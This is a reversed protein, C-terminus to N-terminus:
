LLGHAANTWAFPGWLKRVLADYAIAAQRPNTFTGLYHLKGRQRAWAQFKGNPCPHVGKLGTTNSSAPPRNMNNQANTCTRLNRRRNDLGNRNIHDVHPRPQTFGLLARHFWILRKKGTTRDCRVAYYTHSTAGAIAYWKWRSMRAFDRDDLLTYM